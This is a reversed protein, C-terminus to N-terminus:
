IGVWIPVSALASTDETFVMDVGSSMDVLSSLASTESDFSLALADNKITLLSSASAKALGTFLLTLLVVVM